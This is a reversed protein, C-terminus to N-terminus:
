SLLSIMVPALLPELPKITLVLICTKLRKFHGFQKPSIQLLTVKLKKLIVPRHIKIKTMFPLFTKLGFWPHYCYTVIRSARCIAINIFCIGNEMHMGFFFLPDM